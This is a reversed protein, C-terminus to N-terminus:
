YSFCGETHVYIYQRYGPDGLPKVVLGYCFLAVDVPLSFRLAFLRKSAFEFDRCLGLCFATPREDFHLDCTAEEKSTNGM